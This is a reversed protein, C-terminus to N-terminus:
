YGFKSDIGVTFTNAERSLGTNTDRGHTSYGAILSAYKNMKYKVGVGLTTADKKGYVSKDDGQNLGYSATVLTNGFTYGAVAFINKGQNMGTADEYHGALTLGREFKYEVTGKVSSGNKVQGDQGFNALGGRTPDSSVTKDADINIMDAALTLGGKKYKLGLGSASGGKYRALVGANHMRKNTDDHMISYFGSFQIGNFSPSRYEIANNFYNANLSAAGQQGGQRAQLVHDTWPDIAAYNAKYMPTLRGLRLFGFKKSDLGVTAERGYIQDTVNNGADGVTTYELEAVYKLKADGMNTDLAGMLGIRSANSRFDTGKNRGIFADKGSKQGATLGNGSVSTTDISINVQGYVKMVDEAMAVPAIMIGALASVLLSHKLKM